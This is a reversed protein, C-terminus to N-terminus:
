AVELLRDKSVAEDAFERVIEGKKMVLIRDALSLITEPETSVVVVAMGQDRLSRVIKVVDEKAGVDMGRTPESLVLVKPAHTLWKALAVKQQNGGSLHRLLANVGAARIRLSKVQRATIDRELRPKLWVSSIRELISITVNKYIPEHHFLTSRRSEPVFAIGARRATATTAFKVKHGELALVGSPKIKGFLARTLEVVGCGMFGYIGLIEGARADLSVNRLVQRWSLDEAKLIVPADRKSNLAFEGTYTEGLEEHGLGIMRDIVWLKDIGGTSNTAIKRGNRFITVEDSIRIIDDLFHSIFIFSKGTGRLRRLLQFLREVEPPSLASTPEDLIIIRAGSFLVRAIEILQQLGISLSGIRARPDVDIGLGSLHSRAERVMRQWDIVGARTPQSGLFVNEAVSLDPVISLEQHVMGIGANLADRSSRFRVEKGDLRITGEFDPYVGAIIKMMTSKGAGNEGVLGHIQGARLTFDVNRLAHVGGFSKSIGVLELTPAAYPDARAEESARDVTLETM